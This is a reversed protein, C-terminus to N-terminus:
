ASRLMKSFLTTALYSLQRREVQLQKKMSTLERNVARLEDKLAGSTKVPTSGSARSLMSFDLTSNITLHSTLWPKVPETAWTMEGKTEM